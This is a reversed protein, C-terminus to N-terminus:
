YLLSCSEAFQTKIDEVTPESPTLETKKPCDKFGEESTLLTEYSVEALLTVRFETM